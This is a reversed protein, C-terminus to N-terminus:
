VFNTESFMYVYDLTLCVCFFWSVSVMPNPTLRVMFYGHKKVVKRPPSKISTIMHWLNESLVKPALLIGIDCLSCINKNLHISNCRWFLDWFLWNSSFTPVSHLRDSLLTHGHIIWVKFSLQWNYSTSQPIVIELPEIRWFFPRRKEFKGKKGFYGRDIKHILAM